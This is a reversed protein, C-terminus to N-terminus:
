WRGKHWHPHKHKSNNEGCTTSSIPDVVFMGLKTAEDLVDELPHRLNGKPNSLLAEYVQSQIRMRLLEAVSEADEELFSYAIEFESETIITPPKSVITVGREQEVDM